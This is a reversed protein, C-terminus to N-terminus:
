AQPKITVGIKTVLRLIINAIGQFLVLYFVVQPAASLNGAIWEFSTALLTLANFWITKSAFISKFM